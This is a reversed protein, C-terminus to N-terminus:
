RECIYSRESNNNKYKKYIVNYLLQEDIENDIKKIKDVVKSMIIEFEDSLTFRTIYENKDENWLLNNYAFYYTEPYEGILRRLRKAPMKYHEAVVEQAQFLNAGDEKMLIEIENCYVIALAKNNPDVKDSKNFEKTSFKNLEEEGIGDSLILKEVEDNFNKPYSLIGKKNSMM